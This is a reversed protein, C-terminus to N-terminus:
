RAIIREVLLTRQVQGTAPTRPLEGVVEVRRPHKFAALQGECHARLTTSTSRRPRATARCSSRASWRAGSPTPCGSWRSRPSRRTTPSCPRSRPRARRDRRRHPARRAVRGVISLYGEDDLSASTAPTTGATACRRARHRRAARLVRGHPLASRLCVEGDDCSAARRGAAAARRQGAEAAPRRRRPARARAPRPRATSCARSRTRPVRRPDRRRARAAHGVNRHRRDRLSALDYGRGTTSSSVRGCRRSATSRPPATASSPACCRRRRRTDARLADAPAGAMRQAGHSWGAMHFLPFMCVTGGDHCRDIAGPFAACATPGTPSCSARRAGPAGARSSSSTRTASTSGPRRSGARPSAGEAARFLESHPIVPAVSWEETLPAHVADAVVLRPRAYSVVTAAESPDLRANVPAFVAGLKALAGFVPMAELSTDGWWAVRDGHGVGMGRLAHAVRNSEVDLQHFTLRQEGLTCAIKDGAAAAANRIM